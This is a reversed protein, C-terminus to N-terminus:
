VLFAARWERAGAGAPRAPDAPAKMELSPDIVPLTFIMAISEALAPLASSSWASRNPRFRGIEMELDPLVLRVGVREREVFEILIDRADGGVLFRRVVLVVEGLDMIKGIADRDDQLRGIEAPLPCAHRDSVRQRGRGM